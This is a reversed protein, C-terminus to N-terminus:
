WVPLGSDLTVTKELRAIGYRFTVLVGISCNSDKGVARKLKRFGLGIKGFFGPM